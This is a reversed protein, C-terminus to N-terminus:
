GTAGRRLEYLMLASAVAVNLSPVAGTMPIQFLRQCASLSTASLGHAESGVLLALRAGRPLQWIPSAGEIPEAGYLALGWSDRLTELDAQWDLSRAFPLSLCHGMSVRIAKRYLPDASSPDLLIGDVGFAAANRFLAGINDPDMVGEALLLCLEPRARLHGLAPELASQEATPRRGAALVGRHLHFGAIRSLLQKDAVYLPVDAPLAELEPRLAPYRHAGILISHLRAPHRLLRRLVLASEGIFLGQRDRLEPDKLNRFVDVRADQLSDIQIPEAM